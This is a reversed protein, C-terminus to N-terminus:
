PDEGQRTGYDPPVSSGATSEEQKSAIFGVFQKICRELYFFSLLGMGVTPLVKVIWVPYFNQIFQTFEREGITYSAATWRYATYAFFATIGLGIVNELTTWIRKAREEGAIKELFFGIRIHQDSKVVAGLVIFISYSFLFTLLEESWAIPRNFVYRAIISSFMFGAMALLLFVAAGLSLKELWSSVTELVRLSRNLM